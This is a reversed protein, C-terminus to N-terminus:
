SMKGPTLISEAHISKLPIFSKLEFYDNESYCAIVKAQNRSEYDRILLIISEQLSEITEIKNNNM